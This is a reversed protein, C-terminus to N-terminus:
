PTRWRWARDGAAAGACRSTRDTRQASLDAILRDSLGVGGIEPEVAPTPASASAPPRIRRRRARSRSRSPLRTMLGLLGREIRAQGDHGLVVFAGARAMVDPDYAYAQESLRVIEDELRTM